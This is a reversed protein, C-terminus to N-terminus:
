YLPPWLGFKSPLVIDVLKIMGGMSIDSMLMTMLMPIQYATNEVPFAIRVICRQWVENRESERSEFDPVPIVSLVKAVRDEVLNNFEPLSFVGRGVTQEVAMSVTRALMDEDMEGQILYTGIVYDAPNIGEEIVVVGDPISAM